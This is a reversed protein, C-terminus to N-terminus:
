PRIGLWQHLLPLVAAARDLDLPAATAQSPALAPASTGAHAREGLARRESASFAAFARRLLPLVQVFHSDHLQSVWADVLAWLRPDHLLVLGNRNLFGELWAAADAPEAASSLSLSLWRGAEADSWAGEDLLLRTALGRLLAASSDMHAIRALATQWAERLEPADRLAVAAHGALISERVKQASEEDLACCALPLGIACRQILSDLV